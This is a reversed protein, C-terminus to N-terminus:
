RGTGAAAPLVVPGGMMIPVQRFQVSDIHQIRLDLNVYRLDASVTARVDMTDGVPIYGITPQYAVIGGGGIPAVAGVAPAVAGLRRYEVAPQVAAASSPAAGTGSSKAAATLAALSELGRPQTRDYKYSDSTRGYAMLPATATAPGFFAADMSRDPASTGAAAGAAPTRTNGEACGALFVCLCALCAGPLLRASMSPLFSPM